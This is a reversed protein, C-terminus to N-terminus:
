LTRALVKVEYSEIEDGPKFDSFQALFIGCDSGASVKDTIDKFHRLEAIETKAIIKGDRVIRVPLKRNIVGDEVACGAVKGVKNIHFVEKVRAVGQVKDEEVPSLMGALTDKLYDTVQYFVDSYFVNVNRDKILSKVKGNAVVRYGIIIAGSTHALLVDSESIAGVGSHIIKVKAEENGIKSLANEMAEESGAVDVKIIVNLENREQLSEALQFMEDASTVDYLDQQKTISRRRLRDQQEKIYNRVKQEEKLVIFKHGVRPLSPLGQIQVPTSPYAEKIQKGNEDYLARVKGYELDCLVPEGKRLIGKNVIVTCIAGRGKEVRAEIITGSSPVDQSTKLELMDANLLVHELLDDIGEGTHASIPVMTTDGNWDEAQLGQVALETKIKEIETNPLDIKNIAVIIPVKAAKAHSIAEITQPQVGDDAAVVLIVIDTVKAGRSRMETFVEHGPTDIFTIKKKDFEVQYAGIHQTIGGSEGDAVKTKRIYDLLSTKGHDVHGMVTVVPPRNVVQKGEANLKEKILEYSQDDVENYGHGLDEVVLIAMAREISAPPNDISFSDDIEVVKAVVESQKLKLDEALQKLEVEPPLDVTIQEPVTPKTFEEKAVTKIEGVSLVKRRKRQKNERKKKDDESLAIKKVSDMTTPAKASTTSIEVDNPQVETTKSEAVKAVKTEKTQAELMKRKYIEDARSVADPKSESPVSQKSSKAQPKAAATALPPPTTPKAEVTEQTQTSDNLETKTSSTTTEDDTVQVEMRNRARNSGRGRSRRGEIKVEGGRSRAMGGIQQQKQKSGDVKSVNSPKNKSEYHALRVKEVDEESFMLKSESNPFAIREAKEIEAESLKLREAVQHKSLSSM